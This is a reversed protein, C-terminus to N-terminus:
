VTITQGDFTTFTAGNFDEALTAKFDLLTAIAVKEGLRMSEAYDSRWHVGSINRGIGINGVLKDLEGGVTLTDKDPGTYDELYLGDATPVKPNELVTTEDFFWKLVTVCAGGVTAHGSGYAPHLPSGEPFAMPLLYSGDGGNKAANYAYIEPLVASDLVDAHLPYAKTGNQNSDVRAGFVEPRLRRHVLWKQYWVAKLARVAVEGILGKIHPEGFTGFGEQTRSNRYPSGPNLPAAMGFQDKSRSLIVCADFYAQFLVDIHVYQSIDRGNRIYRPTQDFPPDPRKTGRQVDLWDAFSTMFDSGFPTTTIKQDIVESGFMVTKLLFQSVYPGRLDGVTAGRFLTDTTVKGSVKPGRFDSLASLDAAAAIATKDRYYETFPVDRLLAMWYNEVIEGATQASAFAPAPPMQLHHSDAGALDFAHGSQPNVLKRQKTPDPAGLPVNDFDATRGSEVAKILKQYAAPVVEGLHDHPLGKTFSAFKTTYRDDDGDNPHEPLPEDRQVRAQAVRLEYAQESREVNPTELLSASEEIVNISM